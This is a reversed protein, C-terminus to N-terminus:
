QLDIEPPGPGEAVTGTLLDLAKNSMKLIQGLFVPFGQEALEVTRV